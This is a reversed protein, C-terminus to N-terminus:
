FWSFFIVASFRVTKNAERTCQANGFAHIIMRRQTNATVIIFMRQMEIPFLYWHCQDLADNFLDFRNSIMEGFECVLLIVTFGWFLGPVLFLLEM